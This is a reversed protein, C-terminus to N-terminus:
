LVKWDVKKKHNNSLLKKFIVLM